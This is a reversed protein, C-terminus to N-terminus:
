DFLSKLMLCNKPAYGQYDNNFYGFIDKVKLKKIITAWHQLEKTSYNYDYWRDVGHWRIYAFDTTIQINSPLNPASICCFATRYKKLLEYTETDFWSNHRFEICQRLNHDLVNLFDELLYIDKKLQPPLQWLIVGIKDEVIRIRQFFHNINEEVDLLKKKHTIVRNGKFTLLFDDPTKQKWGKIM